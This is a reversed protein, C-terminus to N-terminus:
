TKRTEGDSLEALTAEPLGRRSGVGHMQMAEQLSRRMLQSANIFQPLADRSLLALGDEGPHACRDRIKNLKKFFGLVEARTAVKPILQEKWLMTGKDALQTCEILVSMDSFSAQEPARGMRKKFLEIALSKRNDSISLWCRERNKESQCLKLAQSEIELALALIALRGLPHFISEFYLVGVVENIHIIFFYDNGTTGFLEIADLITTASPLVQSPKILDMVEAVTADEDNVGAYNHFWLIGLVSGDSDVVRSPNNWPDLNPDEAPDLCAELQWLSTWEQVDPGLPGCIAKVTLASAIQEFASMDM